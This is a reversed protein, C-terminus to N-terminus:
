AAPALKGALGERQRLQSLLYFSGTIVGTNEPADVLMQFAEHQDPAAIVEVAGANKLAERMLAPAIARAPLDQSTEFTTVIIRAAFEALIPAVARYEKGEKLALLVTPKVGPYRKQFSQVFTAMKQENHAGDMVITKDGVQREDMRGPVQLTRTRHLQEASLKPLGDREAVFQYVRRALLWNRQQYAPLNDLSEGYSHREAAESTVTLEAQHAQVWTEVEGMVEESQQYMFVQNQEHVIGIKQRAIEPLTSGLIHMHDFGIDTIVCVKDPRGAVNTADYLGGMGTEIVAYDVGARAFVWYAFATLLEFYSPKEAAGEIIALFAELERCFETESMPRGNLQVRETISDVHPSVTLGVKKGSAGLLAAMFYATSTKGSTGALHIIRLKDQPDGLLAMIPRVRALTVDKGTLQAVLPVYPRLAAEVDEITRIRAVIVEKGERAHYM